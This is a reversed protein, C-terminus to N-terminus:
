PVVISASSDIAGGSYIGWIMITVTLGSPPASAAPFTATFTATKGSDIGAVSAPTITGAAVTGAAVTGILVSSPVVNLATTIGANAVTIAAVLNGSKDRSLVPTTILQVAQTPTLDVTVYIEKTAEFYKTTDAPIFTVSVLNSGPPLVTGLPLSYTFTGQISGIGTVAATANLQSATLASGFQIPVPNNWTIVPNAKVYLTFNQTTNGSPSNAQITGPWTGLATLPPQGTFGRGNNGLWPTGQFNSTINPMPYGTATATFRNPMGATFTTNNPSTVVPASNVTLMFPQTVPQFHPDGAATITLNYMGGSSPEPTGYFAGNTNFGVGAPLTGSISFTPAPFGLSTVQFAASSGANITLMNASSFHPAEYVKIIFPTSHQVAGNVLIQLTTSYIGGTGDRPAGYLIAGGPTSGTAPQFLFATGAPLNGVLAISDFQPVSTSFIFQNSQDAYFTVTPDNTFAPTATVVLSFSQTANPPVGNSATITLPYTGPTNSGPTGSFVGTAANFTVGGPLTGTVSLTPAPGGVATVTFTMGAIGAQFTATNASIIEPAERNVKFWSTIYAQASGFLPQLQQDTLGIAKLDGIMDPLMGIHALGDTNFDFYRQGSQQKSFTGFGPLLFPYVLRNNAAEQLTREVGNGGCSGSGFRPGVHGAIGNFDSGMAVPGGMANVGYLYAQVWEKTSYACDNKWGAYDITFQGGVPGPGLPQPACTLISVGPLCWGWATDQVDDKLMVAIVGGLNRITQLQSATRMREHRGGNGTGGYNRTYLDFFQVHTAAIGAYPPNQQNALAMTDNFSDISMHDIDIMMGKNMAQQILYNGLSNLGPSNHCAAWTGTPYGVPGFGIPYSFGLALELSEQTTNMSFGYNSASCDVVNYFNGESVDNGVNIADQWAAPAGFANDFNHIPFIHRVGMNYYKTLQASVYTQDCTPGEGNQPGSSGQVHCNFLNDVEIGLVVALKGQQIVNTAQVPDTVIQFWGKGMGGYQGDLWTQFNKAAALQLDIEDMSLTCDIGSMRVSSKCLAENTVADMVMLRLGGLWARELWKWYVQQHITSTWQPWGTFSPAGFNNGSGDNTGGGTTTDALTHDGHFLQQNSCLNGMPSNLLYSPCLPAAGVVGVQPQTKCSTSQGNSYSDKCLAGTFGNAVQVAPNMGYDEGLAANVGNTDWPEGALTAGGHALNAWMHVHLDAYGCVGSAPCLSSGPAAVPPLIWPTASENASHDVNTTPETITELTTCSQTAIEGLATTGGCTCDGACGPVAILNDNCLGGNNGRNNSYELTGVCCARQGKGGCATNPTVCTGSSFEIGAGCVCSGGGAPGCAGMLQVLGTNCALRNNSFEGDGNCCARQGAGGCSTPTYCTGLSNESTIIGGSCSCGNPDNCGNVYVTGSNCAGATNSFEGDGNCCARQGNGGCSAAFAGTPMALTLAFLLAPLLLRCPIGRPERPVLGGCNTSCLNTARLLGRLLKPKPKRM